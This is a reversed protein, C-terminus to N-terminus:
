YLVHVTGSFILKKNQLTTLKLQYAYVGDPVREGKYTGDWGELYNDSQFLIEGWRNVILWEYAKPYVVGFPKFVDNTKDKNPTFANPIYIQVEPSAKIWQGTQDECGFIDKVKLQVWKLGSDIFLIYPHVANSTSLGNFDWYHNLPSQGQSNSTMQYGTCTLSDLIKQYAFAAQPLQRSMAAKIKSLTDKCNFENITTLMVNYQGPNAYTHVGNAFLATQADGFHWKIQTIIGTDVTCQSKFQNAQGFCVTDTNFALRSQPYVNLVNMITDACMFTDNLILRYYYKGIQNFSINVNPTYYVSNTNFNTNYFTWQWQKIKSLHVTQDKLKFVNGRLCAQQQDITYSITPSAYVIAKRYTTDYCDHQSYAILRIKYTGINSYSHMANVVNMSDQDGFDWKYALNGYPLYSQNFMSFVNNKFCRATDTLKFQALPM